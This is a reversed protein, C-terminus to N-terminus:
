KNFNHIFYGNLCMRQVAQNIVPTVSTTITSFLDNWFDKADRKGQSIQLLIQTLTLGLEKFYITIFSSSTNAHLYM